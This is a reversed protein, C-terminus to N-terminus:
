KKWLNNFHLMCQNYLHHCLLITFFLHCQQCVRDSMLKWNWTFNELKCSDLIRSTKVFISCVIRVPSISSLYYHAFQSKKSKRLLSIKTTAMKKDRQLSELSSINKRARLRCLLGVTIKEFKLTSGVMLNEGWWSSGHGVLEKIRQSVTKKEDGPKRQQWKEAKSNVDLMFKEIRIRM